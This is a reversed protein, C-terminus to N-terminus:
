NKSGATRINKPLRSYTLNQYWNGYFDVYFHFCIEPNHLCEISCKSIVISRRYTKRFVISFHLHDLYIKVFFVEQLICM